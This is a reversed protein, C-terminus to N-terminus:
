QRCRRYWALTRGLGEELTFRPSLGLDRVAATTDAQSHLVDGPRPPGYIAPIKVGEISQLLEWISNLTYRGGNGANYMRGAVGQARAAKLTIDV